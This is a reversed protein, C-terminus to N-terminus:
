PKHHQTYIYDLHAEAIMRRSSSEEDKEYCEESGMLEEMDDKLEPFSHAIAIDHNVKVEKEGQKPGKPPILLSASALFSSLLLVSFLLVLQPKM